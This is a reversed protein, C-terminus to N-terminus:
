GDRPSQKLKEIIPSFKFKGIIKSAMLKKQIEKQGKNEKSSPIIKKRKLNKIKRL